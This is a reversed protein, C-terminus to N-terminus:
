KLMKSTSTSGDTYRTVVINVGNFPSDSEMGALNYYKVGAVQKEGKVNAIGTIIEDTITVTQQKEAIYYKAEGDKSTKTFYVRVIFNADFSEGSSLSKAGFLGTHHHVNGDESAVGILVDDDANADNQTEFLYDSSVRDEDAELEGLWQTDIQRWARVKYIEYGDPLDVNATMPIYYYKCAANTGVEPTFEDNNTACPTGPIITIVGGASIQQPGGYTNYDERDDGSPLEVAQQPAFLEVVPAYTYTDGETAQNFVYNDEFTATVDAFDSGFNETRGTFDTNMAVTYYTGQNGAQGQPSADDGESDYISRANATTKSDAWRYIYYGLIETKSSYRANLNFTTGAPASHNVDNEVQQATLPTMTMGTKYVPVSITNSRAQNSTETGEDNLPFYEATELTVYYVYQAPHTNEEVSVSFNDYLKLGDFVVEGNTVSINSTTPNEHYGHGYPKSSFDTQNKWDKYTLTGGTSANWNSVEAIVFPETPVVVEGDEDLTARWFKFQSGNELYEPRVNTGVTNNAILSNSYNNTQTAADYRSFYYDSNLDIRLQEARDLGPIIFSEKNSMQLSLFKSNDQGQIVYTVQQGTEQMEVEVDLTTTNADTTGVLTYTGDDNVQYIYYTGEASPLFTNLNSEWSLHLTYVDEGDNKEGTIENQHIVYLGMTPAYNLNYNKFMDDTANETGIGDRSASYNTFWWKMRYDPIFFMLDRVDQCDDSISEKGYMNFEHGTVNNGTSTAWPVTECDHEVKFAEMNVLKQYIDVANNTSSTLSVPSFQEFMEYFPGNENTSFSYSTSGGTKRKSELLYSSSAIADATNYLRLRGKALFFFRNMKDCDIKFLTGAQDGEGYKRSHTIVRVSKFMKDFINRLSAYDTSTKAVTNETVGDKMEVLLLTIGEEEPKYENPNLYHYYKYYTNNSKDEMQMPYHEADNTMGWGYGDSYDLSYTGNDYNSVIKGIAPYAVEYDTDLSGNAKHGRYLNGPITKNTYVEKMLAIMQDPDTAIEGLNNSHENGESDTWTYEIGEYFSAPKTSTDEIGEGNLTYTYDSIAGNAEPFTLTVTVPDYVKVENPNFTIVINTEEGIGIAPVSVASYPDTIGSLTPTVTNSGDNKVNITWRGSHGVAVEGFNHTTGSAESVTVAYATLEHGAGTLDVTPTVTVLGDADAVTLTANYNTEETPTFTINYTRTANKALEGTETSTVTFCGNSTSLAPTVATNGTNKITVSATGSQGVNVTGFDIAGTTPDTVELSYVPTVSGPEYGITMKPLFTRTTGTNGNYSNFSRAVDQNEGLFYTYAYSGSTVVEFDVVLNDGNYEFPTDFTITLNNGDVGDQAELGSKVTQLTVGELRSGSTFAETTTTGLSVQYEGPRTSGYNVGSSTYFTLSKIKTGVLDELKGAPYIMQNIQTNDYYYGYIPVYSNNTNGGNDYITLEYVASGTLPVSVSQLESEAFSINLNGTFDGNTTPEYKVPITVSAGAALTGTATATTSFPASLGSLTYNFPNQGNNKLTVNKTSNGGVALSGFALSEPTVKASYPESVASEYTFTTKPMFLYTQNRGFSYYDGNTNSQGLFYTYSWSGATVVKSEFVLDGGNYQFPTDFELTFETAGTTPAGTTLVAIQANTFGSSIPSTTSVTFPNSAVEGLSIQMSGGSFKVGDSNTYFKIATINKGVMDTLMSSPYVVQSITGQTDWYTSHIPVYANTATGNAVTVDDAQAPPAMFAMLLLGLLFKLYFKKTFM